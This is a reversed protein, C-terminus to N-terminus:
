SYNLAFRVTTGRGAGESTATITGGHARVFARSIALGLGSRGMERSRSSDVRYFRDFIHPLHEVAIGDGDDAVEVCATEGETSLRWEVRSRAHRLGNGPWNQLVQILRNRDEFLM